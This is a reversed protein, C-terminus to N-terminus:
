GRYFHHKGITATRKFAKSWKPRVFNAHYYTAGATINPVRSELSIKAIKAVFEKAEKDRITEKLGDCMYSFQCAHRRHSGQNIVDCVSNPFKKSDRRNKIVEAVAFIGRVKEGRAEFYLAETMCKFETDGSVNSMKLLVSRSPVTKFVFPWTLKDLISVKVKKLFINVDVPSILAVNAITSTPNLMDSFTTWTGTLPDSTKVNNYALGYSAQVNEAVVPTIFTTNFLIVALLYFRFM